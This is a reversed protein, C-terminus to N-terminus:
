YINQRRDNNRKKEENKEREELSLVHKDDKRKKNWNWNKYKQDSIKIELGKLFTKYTKLETRSNSAIM